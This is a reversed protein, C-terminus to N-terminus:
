VWREVAEHERAAAARAEAGLFAGEVVVALGLHAPRKLERCRQARDELRGNQRRDFGHTALWRTESRRTSAVPGAVSSVSSSSAGSVLTLV